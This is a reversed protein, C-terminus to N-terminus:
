VRALRSRRFTRVEELAGALPREDDWPAVPIGARLLRSRLAERRLRWIRYAVADTESTGAEVFPLPSVEVIAVDFGRARLDLFAAAAREDLLPSLALVLAQPPLTRRPLLDVDRWAHSLAIESELLSDVIRYLQVLGTGPVLWSLFGGISVLGVRDKERLYREALAYAARVASELTGGAAGRAEAFSDLLLVVDANREPHQENVWLEGRRASARWNIRRIRDGAVFPRIDAFEIGEGKQRAVQNGAFVQTELPRLLARLTEPRPYVRLQLRADWISEHRLLRFRDDATVVGQGVRYVGWRAARIRFELEREEGAPVRLARPNEGDEVSLGPPLVLRLELRDVGAESAARCTLATEDGELIRNSGLEFWLRLSAKPRTLLLGVAAIAAFPAAVGVLEPRNLVLAALLGIAALGLYAPLKPGVYRSL